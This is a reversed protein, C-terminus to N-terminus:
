LDLGQQEAIFDAESLYNDNIFEIIRNIYEIKGTVKYIKKTANTLVVLGEKQLKQLMAEIQADNAKSISNNERSVKHLRSEFDKNNNVLIVLRDHKLTMGPYLIDGNEDATSLAILVDVIPSINHHISEFDKVVKKKDSDSMAINLGAYVENDGFSVLKVGLPALNSQMRKFNSHDKLWFYALEDSVPCIFKNQLLDRAITIENM